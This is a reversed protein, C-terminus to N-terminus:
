DREFLGDDEPASAGGGHRPLQNERRPQFAQFSVNRKGEAFRYTATSYDHIERVSGPLGGALSGFYTGDPNDSLHLPNGRRVAVLTQPSKWLGLIALPGDTRRVAEICRSTLGSEDSREILRGIVESDCESVTWLRKQRILEAYNRVVGNHVIWGGDAAHPHNNINESPDGHTAFRLHGILMRADRVMALLPLHDVLRGTQKFHCLRGRSDIWSMGFADQGRGINAHIIKGLTRLDPKSIGRAVYGFIACM